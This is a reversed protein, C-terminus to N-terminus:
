ADQAFRRAQAVWADRVARGKLSLEADFRALEVETWAAIDAFRTVGRLALAEALKPGIGTLVTLDDPPSATEVAPEAALEAAVEEVAPAEPEVSAEVIEPAAEPMPEAAPAAEMEDAPEAVPAALAELNVAQTWHTMWWWAAGASAFAGFALMLPAGIATHSARALRERAAGMDAPEEGLWAM